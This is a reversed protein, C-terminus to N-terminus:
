KAATNRGAAVQRAIMEQRAKGAEDMNEHIAAAADQNNAPAGMEAHQRALSDQEAQSLSSKVSDLVADVYDISKADDIKLNPMKKGIIALKLARDTMKADYNELVVAAARELEIRAAVASDVRTQFSSDLADCKAKAADAEGKAKEAKKAEEEKEKELKSMKADQQQILLIVEPAVEFDKGDIQFKMSCERTLTNDDNKSASTCGMAKAKREVCALIKEKSGPGEYRGLLRRAAAVHACDAVPFSRNPGCFASSPLNKRKETSLKADGLEADMNDAIYKALIEDDADFNFNVFDEHEAGDVKNMRIDSGGRAADVVALHNYRRRTQIADFERGEWVGPTYMLDCEYGPSLQQKGDDIEKIAWKDSIVFSTVLMNDDMKVNEGTFGIQQYHANDVTVKRDSPHNNTVPRMKLSEMGKADELTEKPVFERLVTGDGMLYNMVGVKAVPALGVLYGRVTKGCAASRGVM